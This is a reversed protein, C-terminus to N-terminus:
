NLAEVTLNKCTITNSASSASCAVSLNLYQQLSADITSTWTAHDGGGSTLSYIYPAAFGGPSQVRGSGALTANSTSLGPTRCCLLLELEWVKDTIGSQCTIASSAAVQTGSLYTSTGTTGIRVTFTYTPTGTCAVIGSAKILITKGPRNQDFFFLAPFSPLCNTGALLSSEATFSAVATHDARSQFLCDAWSAM